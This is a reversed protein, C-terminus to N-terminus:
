GRGQVLGHAPLAPEPRESCARRRLFSDDPRACRGTPTRSIAACRATPIGRARFGATPIRRPVRGTTPVWRPVRGATPIRRALFGATSIRRIARGAATRERHDAVASLGAPTAAAVVGAAPASALWSHGTSALRRRSESPATFLRRRTTSPGPTPRAHIRGRLAPGPHRRPARGTSERGAHGPSRATRDPEAPHAGRQPPRHREGAPHPRRRHPRPLRQRARGGPVREPPRAARRHAPPPARPRRPVRDPGRARGVRHRRVLPRTRRGPRQRGRSPARARGDGRRDLSSRPSPALVPHPAATDDPTRSTRSSGRGAPPGTRALSVHRRRPTLSPPRSRGDRNGQPDM